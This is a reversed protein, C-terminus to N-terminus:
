FTRGNKKKPGEPAEEAAAEGPLEVKAVDVFASMRAYDGAHQEYASNAKELLKKDIPKGIKLTMVQFTFKKAEQKESDLSYTRHCLSGDMIAQKILQQATKLSTSRFPIIVPKDFDEDYVAVLNVSKSVAPKITNGKKDKEWVIGDIVRQDKCNTTRWEVGGGEDAPKFKTFMNFKFVAIFPKGNLKRGESDIIDGIKAGAVTELAKSTKQMLQVFNSLSTNDTGDMAGIGPMIGNNPLTLKKNSM